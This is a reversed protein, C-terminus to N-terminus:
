PHGVHIAVTYVLHELTAIGYVGGFTHNHTCSYTMAVAVIHRIYVRLAGAHLHKGYLLCCQESLEDIIGSRALMYAFPIQRGNYVHASAPTYVHIIIM